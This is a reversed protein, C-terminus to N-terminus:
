GRKHASPRPAKPDPKLTGKYTTIKKTKASKGWTIECTKKDDRKTYVQSIRQSLASKPKINIPGAWGLTVALGNFVGM